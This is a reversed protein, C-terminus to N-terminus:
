EVMFASPWSLEDSAGVRCFRDAVGALGIPASFSGIQAMM